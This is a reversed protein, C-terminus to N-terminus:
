KDAKLGDVERGIRKLLEPGSATDTDALHVSPIRLRLWPGPAMEWNGTLWRKRENFGTSGFNGNQRELELESYLVSLRGRCPKARNQEV